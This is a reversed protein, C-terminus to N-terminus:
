QNDLFILLFIHLGILDVKTKSQFIISLRKDELIPFGSAYNILSSFYIAFHGFHPVSTALGFFDQFIAPLGSLSPLRMCSSIPRKSHGFHWALKRSTSLLFFIQSVWSVGIM